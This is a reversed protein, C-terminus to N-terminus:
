PINFTIRGSLSQVLSLCDTYLLDISQRDGHNPYNMHGVINRPLVIQEIRVVWQDVDAVVPLFIHSNARMIEALNWLYTYYIGHSGPSTLLPRRSYRRRAKEVDGRIGKDVAIDWWDRGIQVSLISHILIRFVNEVFYLKWYDSSGVSKAITEM